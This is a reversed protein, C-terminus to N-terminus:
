QYLISLALAMSKALVEWWFHGMLGPGTFAIASLQEKDHKSQHLADIVPVIKTLARHL